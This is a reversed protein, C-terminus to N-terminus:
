RFRNTIGFYVRDSIKEIKGRKVRARVQLENIPRPLFLLVYFKNEVFPKNVPISRFSLFTVTEKKGDLYFFAKDLWLCEIGRMKVSLKRLLSTDYSFKSITEYLRAESKESDYAYRVTDTIVEMMFYKFSKDTFGVSLPQHAYLSDYNAIAENIAKENEHYYEAGKRATTCSLMGVLMILLFIHHKRSSM